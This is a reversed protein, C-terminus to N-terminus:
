GLSGSPKSCVRVRTVPYPSKCHSATGRDAQNCLLEQQYCAALPTHRHTRERRMAAINTLPGITQPRSPFYSLSSQSCPPVLPLAWTLTSRVTWTKPPLKHTHTNKHTHIFLIGLSLLLFLCLADKIIVKFWGTYITTDRHVVSHTM